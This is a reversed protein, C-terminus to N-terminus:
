EAGVPEIEVKGSETIKLTFDRSGKTPISTTIQVYGDNAFLYYKEGRQGPGSFVSIEVPNKIGPISFKKFRVTATDQAIEYEGGGRVKLRKDDTTLKKVNVFEASFGHPNEITNIQRDCYISGVSLILTLASLAAYLKKM